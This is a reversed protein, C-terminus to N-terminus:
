YYVKNLIVTFTFFIKQRSQLILKSSNESRQETVRVNQTTVNRDDSINSNHETKVRVELDETEEWAQDIINKLGHKTHSKEEVKTEEYLADEVIFLNYILSVLKM